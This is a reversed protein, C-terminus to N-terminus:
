TRINADMWMPLPISLRMSLSPYQLYLAQMRRPLLQLTPPIAEMNHFNNRLIESIAVTNGHCSMVQLGEIPDRGKERWMRKETHGMLESLLKEINTPFDEGLNCSFSCMQLESRKYGRNYSHNHGGQIPFNALTNWDLEMGTRTKTVTGGLKEMGLSAQHGNGIPLMSSVKVMFALVKCGAESLTCLFKKWVHM